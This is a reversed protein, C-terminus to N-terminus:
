ALQYGAEEVADKVAVEDIPESSTVTFAGTSLVVDVSDVGALAELEETVSACHGCNMGAGTYTCTRSMTSGRSELRVGRRYLM